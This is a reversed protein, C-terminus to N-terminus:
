RHGPANLGVPDAAWVDPNMVKDQVRAAVRRVFETRVQM